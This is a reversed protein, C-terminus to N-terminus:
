ITPGSHLCQEFSSKFMGGGLTVGEETLGTGAVL